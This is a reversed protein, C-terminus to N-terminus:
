WSRGAGGGGSLGGGFGGGFGGGSGFGGGFGSRGGFGGRGGSLLLLLLVPHRIVLAVLGIGLLVVLWGPLEVEPAAPQRTGGGGPGVSEGAIAAALARVGRAVGEGTKDQRLYPTVHEDLIRGVQADPLVGELGYGVEVYVQRDDTALLFLVGDDHEKRGIGWLEFLRNATDRIEGDGITPVVVVQLEAGTRERLQAVTGEVYDRSARDVVGAPDVVQGARAPRLQALEEVTQGSAPVPCGLWVGTALVVFGLALLVRCVVESPWGACPVAQRVRTAIVM